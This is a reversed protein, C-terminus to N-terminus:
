VRMDDDRVRRPRQFGKTDLHGPSCTRADRNQAMEIESPIVTWMADWRIRDGRGGRGASLNRSCPMESKARPVGSSM